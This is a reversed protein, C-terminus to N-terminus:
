RIKKLLSHTNGLVSKVEKLQESVARDLNSQVSLLNNGNTILSRSTKLQNNLSDIIIRDYKLQLEKYLSDKLFAKRANKDAEYSSNWSFIGGIISSVLTIWFVWHSGRKDQDHFFSYIASAIIAFTTIIIQAYVGVM